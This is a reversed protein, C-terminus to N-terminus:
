HLLDPTPIKFDKNWRLSDDIEQIRHGPGSIIIETGWHLTVHETTGWSNALRYFWNAPKFVISQETESKVTLNTNLTHKLLANKFEPISEYDNIYLTSNRSSYTVGGALMLPILGINIWFAPKFFNEFHQLYGGVIYFIGYFLLFAGYLMLFKKWNWNEIEKRIRM